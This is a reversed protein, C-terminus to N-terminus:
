HLIACAKRQEEQLRETMVAHDVPRSFHFGQFRDCREKQLLEVQQLTEVGEAITTLRLSKALAMITHVIASDEENVGLARIFSKDIKLIDIPFRKLYSLSSYGTGFDDISLRVGMHKLARLMGVAQEADHMVVSETIELTLAQPPLGSEALARSVVELLRPQGFQVASVNVSITIDTHGLEHWAKAQRCSQRLVWEGIDVILGSEDAIPIFRDPPILGREPHRWRVLAEAGITRLTAADVCPQFQLFLEDREVAHRLESEMAIREASTANMERVYFRHGNGGSRKANAMATEANMLLDYVQKGDEPVLAIGVSCNIYLEVGAHMFPADFAQKLWAVFNQVADKDTLGPYYIGFEDGGFRALIAGSEAVCEKLRAAAQRLIENGAEYGFSSNIRLFRDLDLYFLAGCASRGHSECEAISETVRLCFYNHNPLGSLRDFYALEMIRSDAQRVASRAAAGKLEREIVPLLRAFNGKQIYDSVGEGMASYATQDSIHGSYIIFPIDKGSHKLIDLATLADFGPMSHDCIIIDWEAVDLAERMQPANDVRRYDVRAGRSAMESYLLFADDESDDVVLMSIPRQRQLMNKDTREM